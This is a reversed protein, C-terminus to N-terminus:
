RRKFHDWGTQKPRSRKGKADILIVQGTNEAVIEGIVSILYPSNRHVMEIVAPRGTFLLQYDEGGSLAMEYSRIGFASRVEPRIPLKEVQIVAGVASAKCIHGLDALLGDSIDIGSKVGKEVLLRGEMLRPEPRVFAQRLCDMVPQDFQLKRSLMELGAAATGLWGTVAILDGPRASDRTLYKGEPNGARGIVNVDVFIMPSSSMNGGVIATGSLAALNLMGQYLSIVNDVETDLPLGLSVLAYRPIGGMAAIDSLNVALSKWGLDEWSIMDLNFHIGQVQCDVKALQYATDGRWVACDDGIGTILNKWSDAQSDRSKEIMKAVIDIMGFQGLESVKM